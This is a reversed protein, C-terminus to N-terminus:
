YNASYRSHGRSASKSKYNGQEPRSVGRRRLELEAHSRQTLIKKSGNVLQLIQNKIGNAAIRQVERLYYPRGIKMVNSLSM